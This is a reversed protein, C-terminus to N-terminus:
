HSANQYLNHQYFPIVLCEYNWFITLKIFIFALNDTAQLECRQRDQVHKKVFYTSRFIDIEFNSRLDLDRTSGPLDYQMDNSADIRFFCITGM